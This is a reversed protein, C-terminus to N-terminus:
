LNTYKTASGKVKEIPYKKKNMQIKDTVARAVDIGLSETLILLYIMIDAIEHELQKRFGTESLLQNIEKDKKWQFLELLEAAEITISVAVDKPTHFQKWDREEVFAAIKEQLEDVCVTM